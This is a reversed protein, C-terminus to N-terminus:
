KVVKIHFDHFFTNQDHNKTTALQRQNVTILTDLSQFFTSLKTQEALDPVKISIESMVNNMLKPNGVHSVYKFAVKNLIEAIATNAEGKDSLLVGNVNTSYFRGSRFSVTGANAGDTTWTIGDKFLYDKYYGMLGRNKTQSSYVPYKNVHDTIVSTKTAALVQGRTVKFIDHVKRKEWPDSFGQFRLEPIN